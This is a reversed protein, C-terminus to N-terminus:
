EQVVLFHISIFFTFYTSEEEERLCFGRFVELFIKVSGLDSSEGFHHFGVHEIYKVTPLLMLFNPAFKRGIYSQDEDPLHSLSLFLPFLLRFPPPPPSLSSPLSLLVCCAILSSFLLLSQALLEPHRQHGGM